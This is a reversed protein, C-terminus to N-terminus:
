IIKLNNSKVKLDFHSGRRNSHLQYPYSLQSLKVKEGPNRRLQNFLKRRM